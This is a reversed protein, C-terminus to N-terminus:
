AKKAAGGSAGQQRLLEEFPDVEETAGVKIRTRSSPTLGFEALMARCRRWADAGIAVEPRARFMTGAPGETRYTSGEVDAVDRARRYEEYAYVLLELGMADAATLVGMADLEAAVARWVRKTRTPLHKPPPPVARDPRPEDKNLARKGPNGQVIKLARPKPKRGRM